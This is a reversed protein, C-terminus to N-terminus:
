VLGKIKKHEFVGSLSKAYVVESATYYGCQKMAKAFNGPEADPASLMDWCAKYRPNQFLDILDKAGDFVTPYARFKQNEPYYVSGDPAQEWASKLITFMGQPSTGRINGFNNNWCYKGWGTEHAYISCLIRVSNIPAPEDPWTPWANGLEAAVEGVDVNTNKKEVFM